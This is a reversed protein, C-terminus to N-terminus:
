PEEVSNIDNRACDTLRDVCSRPLSVLCNVLVLGGYKPCYSVVTRSSDATPLSHGYFNNWSWIEIFSPAPGSSRVRLRFVLWVACTVPRTPGRGYWMVVYRTSATCCCSTQTQLYLVLLNWVLLWIKVLDPYSFLFCVFYSRLTFHQGQWSLPWPWSYEM